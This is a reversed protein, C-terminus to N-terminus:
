SPVWSRYTTMLSRTWSVKFQRREVRRLGYGSRFYRVGHWNPGAALPEPLNRMSRSDMDSWESLPLRLLLLSVLGPAEVPNALPGTLVVEGTPDLSLGGRLPLPLRRRLADVYDRARRPDSRWTTAPWRCVAHYAATVNLHRVQGSLDWEYDRAWRSRGDGAAEVRAAAVGARDFADWAVTQLVTALGARRYGPEVVTQLMLAELHTARPHVAIVRHAIHVGALWYHAEIQRTEFVGDRLECSVDISGLKGTRLAPYGVAERLWNDPAGSSSSSFTGGSV